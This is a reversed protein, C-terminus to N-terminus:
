SLLTPQSPFLQHFLPNFHVSYWILYTYASFPDTVEDQYRSSRCPTFSYLSRPLQHFQKELENNQVANVNWCSPDFSECTYTTKNYMSTSPSSFLQYVKWLDLYIKMEHPGFVYSPFLSFLHLADPPVEQEDFHTQNM